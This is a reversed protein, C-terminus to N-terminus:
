GLNDLIDHADTTSLYEAIEKNEAKLLINMRLNKKEENSVRALRDASILGYPYGLFIADKSNEVLHPLFDRNGTFRFVHRSRPHLKVLFNADDIHYSWYPSSSLKNLLVLPSNGSATFLSSSKALACVNAPLRSLYKEESRYSLELIGDLIIIDADVGRCLSLEAFRRAVNSIQSISAREMGTRITIDTSSISLDNEDILIKNGLPFIKSEYVVEEDKYKATTLLYFEHKHEKIKQGNSYVLAAVRIFSLCFNGAALIEAQGGDIFAISRSSFDTRIPMFHEQNIAILRRNFIIQDQPSFASIMDKLQRLAEQLM